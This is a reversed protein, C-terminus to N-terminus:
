DARSFFSQTLKAIDEVADELHFHHGGELYTIEVSPMQRILDVFGPRSTLSSQSALMAIAPAEVARMFAAVQDPSLMLESELKLRQDVFWSYGGEVERLARRALIEAAEYSTETFGRSRETIAEERSRFVRGRDHRLTDRRLVSKAFRGPAVEPEGPVPIGGDILALASIRKPLTGAALSAIGAGRSHGLLAFRDWGLQDAVAFVEPVDQWVNYAADPSRHGSLGHGACDLAFLHMGSLLPALRDFSGANDLWGHLAIVPLGGPEGWERAALTLGPVEFQRERAGAPM